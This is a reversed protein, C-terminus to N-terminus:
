KQTWPRGKEAIRQKLGLREAAAEASARSAGYTALHAQCVRAPPMWYPLGMEVVVADPRRALVSLVFERTAASQHADRVLLILTRGAVSQLAEAAAGPDRAAVRRLNRGPVWDALGWSPQGGAMSVPSEVEMVIPDRPESLYGTLSLARRAAELGAGGPGSSGTGPVAERGGAALWARLGVVRRAAGELREQHIAGSRVAEIIAARVERYDEASRDRGLCLLDNGAALAMVSAGALGYSTRVARMELGDTVIVGSFGLERRLLALAPPSLSAPLEGTLWPVRLHGLMVTAVGAAVAAAFPPLDREWLEARGGPVEPLELHSDTVTAGHGPFHKACAAVGRSQLGRVAAAGHRAALAPSPGFSRTGIIPNLPFSLVDLCPARNLNIGLAALHTGAAAYVAETLSEDDAAGLVANGPFPSGTGSWDRTVDGGEEAVSIIAEPAASRLSATLEATASPGGVVNSAFLSVGALGGEIARLLWLPATPGPFSPLIVSDALKGLASDTLARREPRSRDISM